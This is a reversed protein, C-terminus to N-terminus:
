RIGIWMSLRRGCIKDLIYCFSFSILLIIFSTLPYPIFEYYSIGNFLRIIFIHCLYIGFSYNGLKLMINNENTNLKNNKLLVNAIMLFISSTLLSSLKLQTGCNTNGYVLWIYGEVIQIAISLVYIISLTKINLKIELMNNGLLLGLYYFTLWGLCANGWMLSIYWSYEISFISPLYKFVIISIPAIIWGLHIFRSKALKGLLPTLLVFQIYVFVYYLHAAAKTTIVNFILAKGGGM